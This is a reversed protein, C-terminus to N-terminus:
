RGNDHMCIIFPYEENLRLSSCQRTDLIPTDSQLGRPNTDYILEWLAGKVSGAAADWYKCDACHAFHIVLVFAKSAAIADKACSLARTLTKESETPSCNIASAGALQTLREQLARPEACSVVSSALLLAGFSCTRLLNKM